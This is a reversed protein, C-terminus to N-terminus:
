NILVEPGNLKASTPGLKREYRAASCRATAPRAHAAKRRPPSACWSTNLAPQRRQTGGRAHGRGDRDGSSRCAEFIGEPGRHLRPACDRWPPWRRPRRPVHLLSFSSLLPDCITAASLRASTSDGDVGRHRRAVGAGAAGGSLLGRRHDFRARWSRQMPSRETGQASAVAPVICLLSGITLGIARFRMM